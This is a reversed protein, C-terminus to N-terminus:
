GDLEKKLEEKLENIQDRVVAAGEFNEEEILANMAIELNFIIKNYFFMTLHEELKKNLRSQKM